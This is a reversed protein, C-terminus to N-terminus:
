RTWDERPGADLSPRLLYIKYLNVVVFPIAGIIGRVATGFFASAFFAKIFLCDKPACNLSISLM